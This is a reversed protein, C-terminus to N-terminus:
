PHQQGGGYASFDAPTLPAEMRFENFCFPPFVSRFRLGASRIESSAVTLSYLEDAGLKM